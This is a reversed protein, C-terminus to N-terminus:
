EADARKAVFEHPKRTANTAPTKTKAQKEDYRASPCLRLKVAMQAMASAQSTLIDKAPHAMRRKGDDIVIGELQIQIAAQEYFSMATCYAGLLPGDGARFFNAPLSAMIEQWKKLAAEDLYAPPDIRAGAADVVSLPNEM